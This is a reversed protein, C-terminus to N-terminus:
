GPEPRPHVVIVEAFARPGTPGNEDANKVLERTRFGPRQTM